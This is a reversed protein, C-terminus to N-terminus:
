LVLCIYEVVMKPVSARLSLFERQRFIEELSDVKEKSFGEPLKERLVCELSNLFELVKDKDAVFSETMKMRGSVDANLFKEVFERKNETLIKQGKIKLVTLRSKLTELINDESNTIVFFYSLGAPEEFTKLLANCAEDTFVSSKVIFIRGKGFFSKKSSLEKIQRADGIKFSDTELCFFDPHALLAGKKTNLIDSAMKLAKELSQDLDGVLLHGHHYGAMFGNHCSVLLFCFLFLEGGALNNGSPSGQLFTLIDDAISPDGSFPSLAPPAEQMKGVKRTRHSGQARPAENDLDM